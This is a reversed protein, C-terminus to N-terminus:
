LKEGTKMSGLSFVIKTELPQGWENGAVTRM